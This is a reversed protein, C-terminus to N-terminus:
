RCKYEMPCEGLRHFVPACGKRIADLTHTLSELGCGNKNCSTLTANDFHETCKCYHDNIYFRQNKYYMKGEAYCKISKSKNEHGKENFQFDSYKANRKLIFFNIPIRTKTFFEGCIVGSICCPVDYQKICETEDYEIWYDSCEYTMNCRFIPSELLRETCKCKMTNFIIDDDIDDSCYNLEEYAM